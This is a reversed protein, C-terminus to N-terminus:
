QTVELALSDTSSLSKGNLTAVASVTWKGATLGVDSPAWSWYAAGGADTTRAPLSKIVSGKEFRIECLAGPTTNCVSQESMPSNNQGPKHNSVFQGSPKLLEAINGSTKDSGNQNAGSSTQSDTGSEGKTYSSATPGPNKHHFFHTANTWELLVIVLVLVALGSLLWPLRKNTLKSGKAIM